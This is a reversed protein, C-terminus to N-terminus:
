TAGTKTGPSPSVPEAFFDPIRHQKLVNWVILLMERLNIDEFAVQGGSVRIPAWGIINGAVGQARTVKSLCIGMVLDSDERRMDGSLACFARVFAEATPEAVPQARSQGMLLLVGGLKSAVVQQDFVSLRGSRYKEGAVEFETEAIASM